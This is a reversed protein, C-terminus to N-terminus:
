KDSSETVMGLAEQVVKLLSGSFPFFVKSAELVGFMQFIDTEGTAAKEQELIKPYAAAFCTKVENLYVDESAFDVIAGLWGTIGGSKAGPMDIGAERLRKLARMIAIEAYGNVRGPVTYANGSVANITYTDPPSIMNFLERVGELAKSVSMEPEPDPEQDEGLLANALDTLENEETTSM